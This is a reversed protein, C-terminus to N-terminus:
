RSSSRIQLLDGLPVVGPSGISLRKARLLTARREAAYNTDARFLSEERVFGNDAGAHIMRGDGLYLGVHSIRQSGDERLNGFFLLDGTQLAALDGDPYEPNDIKIPIETGAHVQQSADRPIVYGSLLYTMKILGSCDVGKGSTGGWLYPLGAFRQVLELTPLDKARASLRDPLLLDSAKITAQYGDPLMVKWNNGSPELLRVLNGSTFVRSETLGKGVANVQLHIPLVMALEGQYFEAQWAARGSSFAGKDLWAIYQDPGQVLYWDGQRDLLKLPMGMLLQTTLEGGHRPQTRLNSVSVKVIGLTDAGLVPNPLYTLSDFYCLKRSLLTRELNRGAEVNTVRGKSILCGNPRISLTPKFRNVRQDPNMGQRISDTLSRALELTPSTRESDDTSRESSGCGTLFLGFVLLIHYFPQYTM